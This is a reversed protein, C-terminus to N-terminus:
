ELLGIGPGNLHFLVTTDPHQHFQGCNLNIEKDIILDIQQLEETSLNGFVTFISAGRTDGCGSYVDNNDNDYRLNDSSITKLQNISIFDSITSGPGSNINLLTSLNPNSGVGLEAETWYNDKGEDLLGFFLAKEVAMFQTAVHTARTKTKAKGLSSLIVTALVGIISVVVLLEILTFGKEKKLFKM